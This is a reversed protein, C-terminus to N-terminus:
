IGKEYDRAEKKTAKRASIIRVNRGDRECYVVILLRPLTSLGLLIFREEDESHSEDFLELANADAFVTTAEEFWVGHKAFNKVNKTEDWTFDLPVGERRQLTNYM